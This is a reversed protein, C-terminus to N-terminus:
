RVAVRSVHRRWWRALRGRHIERSWGRRMRLIEVAYWLERHVYPLQPDLEIAARATVTVARADHVQAAIESRGDRTISFRVPGVWVHSPLRASM